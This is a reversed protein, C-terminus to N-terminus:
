LPNEIYYNKNNKLNTLRNEYLKDMEDKNLNSTDGIFFWDTKTKNNLYLDQFKKFPIKGNEYEKLLEPNPLTLLRWENLKIFKHKILFDIQNQGLKFEM